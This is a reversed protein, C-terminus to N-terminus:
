DFITVFYGYNEWIIIHNRSFKAILNFVKAEEICINTPSTLIDTDLFNNTITHGEEENIILLIEVATRYVTLPIITLTKTEELHSGKLQHFFHVKNWVNEMNMVVVCGHYWEKKLFFVMPNLSVLTNLRDESDMINLELTLKVTTHKPFDETNTVLTICVTRETPIVAKVPHFGGNKVCITYCCNRWRISTFNLCRFKTFTKILDHAHFRTLQRTNNITDICVEKIWFCINVNRIM